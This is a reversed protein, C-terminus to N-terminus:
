KSLYSRTYNTHQTTLLSHSLFSDTLHTLTHGASLRVPVGYMSIGAQRTKGMSICEM